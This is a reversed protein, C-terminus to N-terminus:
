VERSDVQPAEADRATQIADVFAQIAPEATNPAASRVFTMGLDEVEARARIDLDYLTELHDTSFGIPCVVVAGAGRDYAAQIFDGLKPGLWAGGRAGQSHFVVAWPRPLDTTGYADADGVPFGDEAGPALYLGEALADVVRRIGDVYVFDGAEVDSEPLSHATFAVAVEDSAVDARDFAEILAAGHAMAFGVFEGVEPAIVVSLGHHRDASEGVLRYAKGNSATSYFPSLSVAIIRTAGASVLSDIAEDISPDSYVMGVEVPISGGDEALRVAVEGAIDRAISVLPSCGGIAEYNSTIRALVEPAPTRGMLKTMFPEVEDLCEPGGYGVILVGDM